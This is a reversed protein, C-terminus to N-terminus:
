TKDQRTKDQRPNPASQLSRLAPRHNRINNPPFFALLAFWLLPQPRDAGSQDSLMGSDSRVWVRDVGLTCPGNLYNGDCVRPQPSLRDGVNGDNDNAVLPLQHCDLNEMPRIKTAPKISLAWLASLRTFDKNMRLRTDPERARPPRNAWKARASFHGSDRAFIDVKSDRDLGTTAPGIQRRAKNPVPHLKILTMGLAKIAHM